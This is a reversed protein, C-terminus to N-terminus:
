QVRSGRVAVSTRIAILGSCVGMIEVAAQVISERNDVQPMVQDVAGQVLKRKAVSSVPALVPGSCCVLDDATPLDAADIHNVATKRSGADNIRVVSHVNDPEKGVVTTSRATHIRVGTRVGQLLPPIDVGESERAGTLDKPVGAPASHKPRPEHGEVEVGHFSGVDGLLQFKLESELREIEKVM